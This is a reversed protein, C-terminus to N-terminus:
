AAVPARATAAEVDLELVEVGRLSPEAAGRLVARELADATAVAADVAAAAAAKAAVVADSRQAEGLRAGANIAALLAADARLRTSCALRRAAM